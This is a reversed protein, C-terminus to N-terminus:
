LPVERIKLGNARLDELLAASHLDKQVRFLVTNGAVVITRVELKVGRWFVSPTATGADIIVLLGTAAQLM